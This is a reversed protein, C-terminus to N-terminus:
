NSIKESVNFSEITSVPRGDMTIGEVKILYEGSLDGTFFSVDASESDTININPEWYLTTRYDM